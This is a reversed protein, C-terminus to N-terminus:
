DPLKCYHTKQWERTESAFVDAEAAKAAGRVPSRARLKAAWEEVTEGFLLDQGRVVFIPEDDAAKGLCGEGRAAAELVDRKTWM